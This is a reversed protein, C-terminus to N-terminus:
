AEVSVKKAIKKVETVSLQLIEAIQEPTVLKSELVKKIVENRGKERGESIFGQVIECM